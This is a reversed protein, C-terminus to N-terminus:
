SATESGIASENHGAHFGVGCAVSVAAHATDAILLHKRWM